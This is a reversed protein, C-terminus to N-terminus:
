LPIVCTLVVLHRGTDVVASFVDVPLAPDSLAEAVAESPEM